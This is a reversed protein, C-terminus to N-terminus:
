IELLYKPKSHFINSYTKYYVSVQTLKNSYSKTRTFDTNLWGNSLQFKDRVINIAEKMVSSAYIIADIDNTMDRFGYNALIAAGGVLIIEAPMRKGNRKRFEKALEKLYDNLNEKTFPIDASM